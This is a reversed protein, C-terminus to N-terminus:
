QLELLNEAKRVQENRETKLLLLQFRKNALCAYIEPRVKGPIAQIQGHRLFTVNESGARQFILM